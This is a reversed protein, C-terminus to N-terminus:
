LETWWNLDGYLNWPGSFCFPGPIYLCNGKFYALLLFKFLHFQDFLTSHPEFHGWVKCGKTHPMCCAEWPLVWAKTFDTFIWLSITHFWNTGTLFAENESLRSHLLQPLFFYPCILVLQSIALPHDWPLSKSVYLEGLFGIAQWLVQWWSPRKTRIHFLM